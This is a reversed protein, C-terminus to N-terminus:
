ADVYERWLGRRPVREQGPRLQLEAPLRAIQASTLPASVPALSFPGPLDEWEGGPVIARVRRVVGDHVYAVARLRARREAPIRASGASLRRDMEFDPDAADGFETTLEALHRAKRYVVLLCDTRDRDRPAQPLGWEPFLERAQEYPMFVAKPQGDVTVKTHGGHSLRERIPKMSAPASRSNVEIFRAAVEAREQGILWVDHSILVAVPRNAREAVIVQGEHHAANMHTAWKQSLTTFTVTTVTPSASHAAVM